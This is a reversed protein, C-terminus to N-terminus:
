VAKQTLHLQKQLDKIVLSAGYYNLHDGNMYYPFKGDKIRCRKENCFLPRPNYIKIQPFGALLQNIVQDYQQTRKAYSAFNLVCKKKLQHTWPLTLPRNVYCYNINFDLDPIDKLFVLDKKSQLVRSFFHKGNALFSKVDASNIPKANRWNTGNKSFGGTMLYAWYGSVYVTKISSNSELFALVADYKKKCEDKLFGNYSFPLCSTQSIVLVSNKEMQSGVAHRYHLTHSDGLFLTDPMANKSISCTGDFKFSKFQPLLRDCPIFNATSNVPTTRLAILDKNNNFRASLGEQKKIYFGVSGITAMLLALALLKPTNAKNSWRIPKEILKYTLWALIISLLVVSIRITQSPIDGEMVRAFALLPWHWLYLPFSIIGFWILVPHALVKRNLWATPGALIILLAGLVPLLAWGGPFVTQKSFSFAAIMTLLFGLISCLNQTTKSGTAPNFPHAMPPTYLLLWALLSGALLEWCRSQPSYFSAEPHQGILALNLLFSIASFVLILTLFNLKRKWAVWLLLPWFIYFQEEIGLSWLHLLPKTDAANDFYGTEKWLIFNSIFGAGGAIHRGLQKYEEPFLAFWGFICCFTLTLLLAPFIRKIRRQYFDFFSFNNNELSSFILSSILFGSIVFFVDVGIFGGRLWNPFAHFAVVLLVAIARLGDIDPRYKFHTAPSVSQM